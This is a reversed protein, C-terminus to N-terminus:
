KMLIEKIIKEFRVHKSRAAIKFFYIGSSMQDGAENKGDWQM